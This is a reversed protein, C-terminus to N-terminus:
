PSAADLIARKKEVSLGGALVGDLWRIVAGVEYFYPHCGRPGKGRRIYTLDGPDTYKRLIDLHNRHIDVAEAIETTRIYM